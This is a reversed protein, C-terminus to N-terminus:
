SFVVCGNFDEMIVVIIDTRTWYRYGLRQNEANYSM